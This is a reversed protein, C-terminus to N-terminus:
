NDSLRRRRFFEKLMEGAEDGLLGGVVEIRHNLRDDRVVNYLSGCAGAKEDRAGFVLRDVRALVLAGACMTCPEITVYATCGSLRWRDLASSAQTVAIMEAHATPDNLRERQNHARGVIRGSHVIVCGVPVENEECALRAEKLAERM